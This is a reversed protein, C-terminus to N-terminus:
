KKVQLVRCYRWSFCPKETYIEPASLGNQDKELNYFTEERRKCTVASGSQREDIESRQELAERMRNQAFKTRNKGILLTLSQM